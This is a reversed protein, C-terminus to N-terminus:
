RRARRASRLRALALLPLLLAPASTTTRQAGPAAAACGSDTKATEAPEGADAAARGADREATPPEEEEPLGLAARVAAGPNVIGYGYTEDHGRADPVAYPAARATPDDTRGGRGRAARARRQGALAAVGAVVPCASSTGGFSITYDGPDDGDAGAIDTTFTATPAALDLSAGFNSFPSAEDFNNIAGINSCAQWPAISGRREGLERNENGAAFVVM